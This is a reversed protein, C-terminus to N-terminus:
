NHVNPKYSWGSVYKLYHFWGVGFPHQLRTAVSDQSRLFQCWFVSSHLEDCWDNQMVKHLRGELKLPVLQYAELFYYVM